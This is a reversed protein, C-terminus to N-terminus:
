FENLSVIESEASPLAKAKRRDLRTAGESTNVAAALPLPGRCSDRCLAERRADRSMFAGSDKQYSPASPARTPPISIRGGCKSEALFYGRSSRIWPPGCLRHVSEHPYRQFSSSKAAGPYTATSILGRPEM